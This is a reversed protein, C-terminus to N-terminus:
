HAASAPAPRSAAASEMLTKLQAQTKSVDDQILKLQDTTQTLSAATNKGSEFSAVMNSLVTANFAAIGGVIAIVTGVATTILVTKLNRSQDVAERRAAQTEAQIDKVATALRQDREDNLKEQSQRWQDYLANQSGIREDLLKMHSELRDDLHRLHLEFEDRSPTNM